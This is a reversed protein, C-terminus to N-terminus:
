QLDARPLDAQKRGTNIVIDRGICQDADNIGKNCASSPQVRKATSNSRGGATGSIVLRYRRSYM